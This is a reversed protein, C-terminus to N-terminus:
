SGVPTVGCASLQTRAQLDFNSMADTVINTSLVVGLETLYNNLEARLQATPAAGVALTIDYMLKNLQDDQAVTLSREPHSFSMSIADADGGVVRVVPACFSQPWKAAPWFAWAAGGIVLAVVAILVVRRM